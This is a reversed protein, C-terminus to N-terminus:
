NINIEELKYFKDHLMFANAKTGIHTIKNTTIAYYIKHITLSPIKKGVTHLVM